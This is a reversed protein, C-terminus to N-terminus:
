KDLFEPRIIRRRAISSLPRRFVPFELYSQQCSRSSLLREAIHIEHRSFLLFPRVSSCLFPSLSSSLFLFNFFTFSSFLSRPLLSSVFLLALSLFIDDSLLLFLSLYLARPSHFPRICFRPSPHSSHCPSPTSLSLTSRNPPLLSLPPLMVLALFVFCFLSPSSSVTRLHGRSSISNKTRGSPIALYYGEEVPRNYETLFFRWM